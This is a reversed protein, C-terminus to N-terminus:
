NFCVIIERRKVSHCERNGIRTASQSGSDMPTRHCSAARAQDQEENFTLQKLINLWLGDNFLCIFTATTSHNASLEWVNGWDSSDTRRIQLRDLRDKKDYDEEAIIKWKSKSRRNQWLIRLQVKGPDAVEIQWRLKSCWGGIEIQKEQSRSSHSMSWAGDWSARGIAM